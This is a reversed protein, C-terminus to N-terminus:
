KYYGLKKYSYKFKLKNEVENSLKKDKNYHLLIIRHFNMIM